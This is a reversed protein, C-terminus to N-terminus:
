VAPPPESGDQPIVMKITDLRLILTWAKQPPLAPDRLSRYTAQTVPIYQLDKANLLDSVRGQYGGPKIHILGRIEYDDTTILVKMPQTRIRRDGGATTNSNIDM